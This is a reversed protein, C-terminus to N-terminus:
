SSFLKFGHGTEYEHIPMIRIKFRRLYFLIRKLLNFKLYFVRCNILKLLPKCANYPYYVRWFQDFDRAIAKEYGSFSFDIWYRSFACKAEYFVSNDLNNTKRTQLTSAKRRNISQREADREIDIEDSDDDDDEDEDEDVHLQEREEDFEHKNYSSYFNESYNIEGIDGLSENSSISNCYNSKLWDLTFKGFNAFSDTSTQSPVIGQPSGPGMIVQNNDSGAKENEKGGKGNDRKVNTNYNYKATQLAVYINSEILKTKIYELSKATNESDLVIILRSNSKIIKSNKVDAEIRQECGTDTGTDEDASKSTETDNNTPKSRKKICNIQKWCTVIEEISLETGDIFSFNDTEASTPGCYYLLYTDYPEDTTKRKSFFAKIKEVYPEKVLGTAAFDCGFNEILHYQLFNQIKRLILTCRQSIAQQYNFPLFSFAAPNNIHGTANTTTTGMTLYSTNATSLSNINTRYPIQKGPYLTPNSLLSSCNTYNGGSDISMMGNNNKNLLHPPAVLAYAICSGTISKCFQYLLSIWIFNLSLTCLYLGITFSSNANFTFVALIITQVFCYLSIRYSISGLHRVDKDSLIRHIPMNISHNSNDNNSYLLHNLFRTLHKKFKVFSCFSGSARNNNINSSQSLMSNRINNSNSDSLFNSRKNSLNLHGMSNTESNLGTVENMLSYCDNIKEMLYTLNVTNMLEFSCWICAMALFFPIVLFSWHRYEICLAVTCAIMFLVYISFSFFIALKRWFPLKSLFALNWRELSTLSCYYISLLSKIYLTLLFCLFTFLNPSLLSFVSVQSDCEPRHKLSAPDQSVFLISLITLSLNVVANLISKYRFLILTLLVPMFLFINELAKVFSFLQFLAAIFGIFLAMDNLQFVRFKSQNNQHQKLQNCANQSSKILYSYYYYYYFRHRNKANLPDFLDKQKQELKKLHNLKNMSNKKSMLIIGCRFLVCFCIFIHTFITFSDTYSSMHQIFCNQCFQYGFYLNLLISAFKTMLKAILRKLLSTIKRRSSLHSATTTSALSDRGDDRDATSSNLTDVDYDYLNLALRHYKFQLKILYSLIFCIFFVFIALIQVTLYSQKINRSSLYVTEVEPIESSINEIKFTANIQDFKSFMMRSTTGNMPTMSNMSENVSRKSFNNLIQMQELTPACVTEYIFPKNAFLYLSLAVFLILDSFYSLISLIFSRKNLVFNIFLFHRLREYISLSSDHIIQNEQDTTLGSKACYNNEKVDNLTTTTPLYVSQDSATM